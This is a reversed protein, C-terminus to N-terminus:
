RPPVGLLRRLGRGLAGTEEGNPFGPVEDDQIAHGLEHYVIDPDQAGDEGLGTGFDISKEGASYFANDGVSVDAANLGISFNMVGPFGLQNLYEKSRNAHYYANAEDVARENTSRLSTYPPTARPASTPSTNAYTGNLTLSSTLNGLKCGTLAADVNDADRLDPDIELADVPSKM